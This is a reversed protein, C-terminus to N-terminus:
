KIRHNTESLLNRDDAPEADTYWRKVGTIMPGILNEGKYFFYFLVALVHIALLAALVIRNILHIGTLFDSTEKSVWLYLPGETLIDDNAFLGTAVQTIVHDDYPKVEDPYGGEGTCCFTGLAQAAKMRSLMTTISVSGYSMGGGYFPVRIKIRHANDGRRNLDVGVDIDDELAEEKSFKRPPMQIRLKDFGGGSNGIRCELGGPPMEGTEAMHWTSVLLDGTWRFDGIADFTPNRKLSIAKVPCIEHCPEPCDPGVCRYPHKTLVVGRRLEHVGYPCIEVCKGCAVCANSRHLRFKGIPNKFRSPSQVAEPIPSEIAKNNM